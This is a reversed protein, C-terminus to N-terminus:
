FFNFFGSNSTTFLETVEAQSLAKGNWLGVDDMDGTYFGSASGNVARCGLFVYNTANYVPNQKSGESIDEVGNVYIKCTNSAYTVVIHNLLGDAVNIDGTTTSTDAGGPTYYHAVVIFGSANISVEMGEFINPGTRTNASGFIYSGATSTKLWMSLSYTATPKFDAHDSFAIKSSSGNFNAGQGYKGYSTGYTISTDTGNHTTKEDNSNGELRYYAKLTADGNVSSTYIEAM